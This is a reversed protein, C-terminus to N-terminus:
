EVILKATDNFANGELNVTRDNYTVAVASVKGVLLKFPAVGFLNLVDRAHNLDGYILNGSADQIELWCEDTFVFQLHDDGGATVTIMQSELDSSRDIVIEAPTTDADIASVAIEEVSESVQQGDDNLLLARTALQQDLSEIEPLSSTVTETRAATKEAPEPIYDALETDRFDGPEDDVLTRQDASSTVVPLEPEPSLWWIAVLLLVIGILSYTGTRAVPGAFQSTGVQRETVDKISSTEDATVPLEAEYTAIIEDGSLGLERAYARLYGKLFVPKKIKEFEGEDINDIYDIRLFLRDAMDQRSMGRAIRTEALRVSVKPLGKEAYQNVEDTSADEEQAVVVSDNDTTDSM